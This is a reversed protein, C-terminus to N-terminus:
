LVKKVDAHRTFAKGRRNFTSKTQKKNTIPNLTVKLVNYTM